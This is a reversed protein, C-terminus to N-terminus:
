WCWKQLLAAITLVLKMGVSHALAHQRGRSGEIVYRRARGRGAIAIWLHGRSLSVKGDEPAGEGPVVCRARQQSGLDSAPHRPRRCARHGRQLPRHSASQGFHDATSPRAPGDGGGPRFNQDLTASNCRHSERKGEHRPKGSSAARPHDSKRAPTGRLRRHSKANGSPGGDRSIRAASATASSRASSSFDIVVVAAGWGRPRDMWSGSAVIEVAHRCKRTDSRARQQDAGHTRDKRSPQQEARGGAVGLLCGLLRCRRLARDGTAWHERLVVIPMGADVCEGHVRPTSCPDLAHRWSAVQVRIEPRRVSGLAHGVANGDRNNPTPM